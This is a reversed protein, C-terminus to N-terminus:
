KVSKSKWNQSLLKEFKNAKHDAVSVGAILTGKNQTQNESNTDKHHGDFSSKIQKQSTYKVM